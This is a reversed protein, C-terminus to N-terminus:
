FFILLSPIKCVEVKPKEKRTRDRSPEGSNSKKLDDFASIKQPMFDAIRFIILYM